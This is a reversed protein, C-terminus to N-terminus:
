GFRSQSPMEIEPPLGPLNVKDRRGRGWARRRRALTAREARLKFHMAGRVAFRRARAAPASTM